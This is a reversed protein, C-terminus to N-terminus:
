RLRDEAPDRTPLAHVRRPHAWQRHAAARFWPPHGTRARARNSRRDPAPHLRVDVMRGGRAAVRDVPRPERRRRPVLGSQRLDPLHRLGGPEPHPRGLEVRLSRSSLGVRRPQGRVRGGHSHRPGRGHQRGPQSARRVQPCRGGAGARLPHRPRGGPARRRGRRDPRSGLPIAHGYRPPAPGSELGDHGVPEVLAVGLILAGGVLVTPDFQAGRVPDFQRVPELPALPSLAIAGVVALAVGAVVALAPGLACTVAADRRTLGFARLTRLSGASRQLWQALSQGVLVLLALAALGGFVALAVAQPRIANQVQRHVTDM